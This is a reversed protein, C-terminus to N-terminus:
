VGALISNMKKETILGQGVLYALGQATKPYTLDIIEAVEMSKMFVEVVIDSKAAPIDSAVFASGNWKKGVITPDYGAIEIMKADNVAGSLESIGKCVGSDNIIAYYM